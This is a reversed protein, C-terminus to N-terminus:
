VDVLCGGVVTTIGRIHRVGEYGRLVIFLGGHSYPLLISLDGKNMPRDLVLYPGASLAYRIDHQTVNTALVIISTNKVLRKTERMSSGWDMGDLVQNLVVLEYANSELHNALRVSDHLNTVKFGLERLSSNTEAALVPNDSVVLAKKESRKDM